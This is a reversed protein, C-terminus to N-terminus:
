PFNRKRDGHAAAIKGHGLTKQSFRLIGSRNDIILTRSQEMFGRPAIHRANCLFQDFYLADRRFDPVVGTAGSHMDGGILAATFHQLIEELFFADIDIGCVITSPRGKEASRVVPIEPRQLDKAFLAGINGCLVSRAQGRM